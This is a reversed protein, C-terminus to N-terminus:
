LLAGGTAHQPRLGDAHCWPWLPAALTHVGELAAVIVGMDDSSHGGQELVISLHAAGDCCGQLPGSKGHGAPLM